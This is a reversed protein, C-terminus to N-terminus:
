EACGDLGSALVACVEAGGAGGVRVMPTYADTDAADRVFGHQVRGQATAGAPAVVRVTVRDGRAARVIRGWAASCVESYRVEVLTTGVTVSTTTRARAGGCGMREPDKGVCDDGACRVGAPLSPATSAAAAPTKARPRAEPRREGDSTLWVAGLVVALTGALATLLVAPRRWRAGPARDRAGPPVADGPLRGGARAGTGPARAPAPAPATSARRDQAIRLAEGTTDQRTESRRWAREALEWGATLRDPDTGTVEALALVAGKPALLRGGLYREWSARGYGTRDAVAAVSLGSRDVLRRLEEVFEALGPDLEEPLAKWRPM